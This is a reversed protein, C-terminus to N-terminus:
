HGRVPAGIAREFPWGREIRNWLTLYGIGAKRSWARMSLREGGYTFLRVSRRNTAQELRTAWRCNGPEYGLENKIRDITHNPSPRPGMDAFFNAFDSRWRECVKIGRAGYDKYSKVKQNECRAIM